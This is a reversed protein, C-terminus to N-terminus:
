QDPLFYPSPNPKMLVLALASHCTHGKDTRLTHVEQQVLIYGRRKHYSLSDLSTTMDSDGPGLVQMFVKQIQSAADMDVSSQDTFTKKQYEAVLHSLNRGDRGLIVIVCSVFTGISAM